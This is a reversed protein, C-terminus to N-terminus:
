FRYNMASVIRISEYDRDAPFGSTRTQREVRLNVTTKELLYGIVVSHIYVTEFPSTPPADSDGLGYDLHFRGVTGGVDWSGGLRHTM